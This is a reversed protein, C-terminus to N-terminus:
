RVWHWGGGGTFTRGDPSLQLDVDPLNQAASHVYKAHVKGMRSITGTMVWSYAQGHNTYNATARFREGDTTVTALHKGGDCDNGCLVTWVGDPRMTGNDSSPPPTTPAGSKVGLRKGDWPGAWKTSGEHRYHGQFSRGDADLVLEFDGANQPGRYTPAESWKGTIKSGEIRGKIVGKDKTYTGTVRGDKVEIVMHGFNTEWSGAINSQTSVARIGQVRGKRDLTLTTGAKYNVSSGNSNRWATDYALTATILYGEEDFTVTTGGMCNMNFGSRTPWACERALTGTNVRGKEDFFVTTGGKCTMNHGSRTPWACERALTGSIVCRKDDLTVSTGPMCTMNHGSRTNFTMEGTTILTTKAFAAMSFQVALAAMLLVLTLPTRQKM